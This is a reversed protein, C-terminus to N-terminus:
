KFANALAAIEKDKKLYVGACRYCDVSVPNSKIYNQQPRHRIPRSRREFGGFASAAELEQMQPQPLLASEPEAM